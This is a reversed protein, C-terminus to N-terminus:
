MISRVRTPDTVTPLSRSVRGNGEGHGIVPFGTTDPYDHSGTAMVQDSITDYEFPRRSQSKVVLGPGM